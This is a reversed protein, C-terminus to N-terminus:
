GELTREVGDAALNGFLCSGINSLQLREMFTSTRASELPNGYLFSSGCNEVNRAVKTMIVAEAVISPLCPLAKGVVLGSLM